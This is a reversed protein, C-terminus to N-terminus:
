FRTATVNEDTMSIIEETGDNYKVLIEGGALDLNEKNQIYQTKNPMKNVQISEVAKEVVKIPQKDTQDEYRIIVETQGLSLEEGNEVTYDEVNKETGDEYTVCVIMGESNFDQGVVYETKNPEKTIKIEKVLNQTVTIEQEVSMGEYEITVSTQGNKLNKGDKIVYDTVDETNGKKYTVEIIMGTSDFDDGAKYETKAPPNKIEMNTVLNEQVTIPLEYSKDQYKITVSTQNAKLNTGNIIDYGDIEKKQGNNYYATVVMGEKDFDEGVFYETKPKTTVKIEKLSNDVVQSTTFAKITCDIDSVPGFWSIGDLSFYSCGEIEVDSWFTDAQQAEGCAITSDQVEVAVYFIDAPVEIPNLFELTHYGVEELSESNGTKLEVLQLNELNSGIYVKCTCKEYINIGVQTIYEKETTKKNFRNACYMKNSQQNFLKTLDVAVDYGLYNYQYINEYEVSDSSKVIGNLSKYINVDEYSVYMFGNKGVYYVMTDGEYIFGLAIWIENPVQAVDTYGANEFVSKSETFYKEKTIKTGWSNKIIWAGKKSPQHASNFNSIEYDDDWGVISVAHNIPCTAEDDCYIAGTENNYYENAISEGYIGSYVAGYNKIHNKIQQMMENTVNEPTVSPFEVTDYVQSTVTKGQIQSLSILKENNEFPMESENIAGSGNTLYASAIYWNGGGVTRNFSNPNTGDSFTRSTAYELHRESFDYVKTSLGNTKNRLALNTELSSMTAFAWCSGTSMQDKVIVNEPIETEDALNFYSELNNGLMRASKLPNYYEVSTYEINYLRPMLVKQKEDEELELWDKFEETYELKAESYIDTTALVSSNFILAISFIAVIKKLINYKKM